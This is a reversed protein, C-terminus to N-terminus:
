YLSDPESPQEKDPNAAKRKAEARAIEIILILGLILLLGLFGFHVPLGKEVTMRFCGWMWLISGIISILINLGSSDTILAMKALIM